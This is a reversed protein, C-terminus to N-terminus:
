ARTRYDRVADRLRRTMVAQPSMANDQTIRRVLSGSIMDAADVVARAAHLEASMASLLEVITGQLYGVDFNLAERTGAKASASATRGTDTKALADRALEMAAQLAAGAGPADGAVHKMTLVAGVAPNVTLVASM